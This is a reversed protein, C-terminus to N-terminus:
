LAQSAGIVTAALVFEYLLKEMLGQTSRTVNEELASSYMPLIIKLKNITAPRIKSSTAPVKKSAEYSLPAPNNMSKDINNAGITM